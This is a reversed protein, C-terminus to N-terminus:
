HDSARRGEREVPRFPMLRGLLGGVPPVLEPHNAIVGVEVRHGDRVFSLSNSPNMWARRRLDFWTFVYGSGVFRQLGPDSAAVVEVLEDQFAFPWTGSPVLLHNSRGGETRLNSYMAFSTETKLGLYPCAGNLFAVVPMLWLVAWRCSLLGRHGEGMPLAGVRVWQDVAWALVLLDYAMWAPYTRNMGLRHDASGLATIAVLWGARVAIGQWWGLDLGLVWRGLGVFREMAAESAFLWLLPFIVVAFASFGNRPGSSLFSHFFVALLIAAGRTRRFALLVPILGEVLLTGHIGCEIWFRGTPLFLMPLPRNVPDTALFQVCGHEASLFDTNLKHFTAWAYVVLVQIRIAGAADALLAAAPDSRWTRGFGRAVAALLFTANSAVLIVAHNAMIRQDSFWDLIQTAALALLARASGPTWVVWFCAAAYIFNPLSWSWHEYYAKDFLGAFAWCLVFARALAPGPVWESRVLGGLPDSAKLRLEFRLGPRSGKFRGDPGSAFTAERACRRCSM